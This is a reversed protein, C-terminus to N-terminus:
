GEILKQDILDKQELEKEKINIKLTEPEIEVVSLYSPLNIMQPTVQIIQEGPKLDKADVKAELKSPDFSNLDTNKGMITVSVQLKNKQSEIEYTTPLLQFSLPITVDKKIIGSQVVIGFWLTTALVVAIIKSFLNNFLFYHWFSSAKDENEGTLERLKKRLKEENELINIKGNQALSIKGREESVILAIADTDETIGTGARHRTGAKRYGDYNRALPLHVGFQKILNNEIVIAGDHGPSSTDFISLILEKTIEGNLNQGGELMEELDQRGSFVLIAGIKREAMILLAEAIEASANKSIQKVKTFVHHKGFIIWRFFRRIERQFVIAIIIFTLTSIPQLISRTLPLNLNQSIMSLLILIISVLVVFYSKTQKVFLIVIYIAFSVVLIDLIERPSINSFAFSLNPLSIIQATFLSDM